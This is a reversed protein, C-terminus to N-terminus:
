EPLVPLSLSLGCVIFTCHHTIHTRSYFSLAYYMHTHHTHPTHTYHTHTHTIHPTHTHHTHTHHTHPTHTHHTHTHHTPPNTSTCTPTHPHETFKLLYSLFRLCTLSHKNSHLPFNKLAPNEFSSPFHQSQMNHVTSRSRRVKCTCVYVYGWYECKCVSGKGVM